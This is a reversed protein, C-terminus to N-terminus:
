RSELSGTTCRVVYHLLGLITKCKYEFIIFIIYIYIYINYIRTERPAADGPLLKEEEKKVEKARQAPENASPIGAGCNVMSRMPPPAFPFQRVSVRNLFSGFESLLFSCNNVSSSGSGTSGRYVYWYMCFGCRLVCFSVIVSVDLTDGRGRVLDAPDSEDSVMVFNFEDFEM